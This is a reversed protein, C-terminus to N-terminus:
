TLPNGERDDLWGKGIQWRRTTGDIFTYSVTDRASSDPLRGVIERTEAGFEAAFDRGAAWHSGDPLVTNDDFQTNLIVAGDLNASELVAGRLNAGRLFAGSLNANRLDAGSLNANRLVAGSLNVRRLDGSSLDAEIFNTGGLNAQVLDANRLNAKWSIADSLNADRLSAGSLNARELRAHSLNAFRLHAGSLDAYRLNNGMLSIYNLNARSLNAGRLDTGSLKSGSGLTVGSLDALTLLTDSLDAFSLDATQLSAMSLDAGKLLADTHGLNGKGYLWGRKRLTDIATRATANVSSGAERVLQEQLDRVSRREERREQLTNLVLITLGVSIAETYLNTGYGTDDAFILAGIAVGILVLLLGGSLQYFPGFEKHIARIEQERTLTTETM